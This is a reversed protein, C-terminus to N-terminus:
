EDTAAMNSKNGKVKLGELLMSYANAKTNADAAGSM